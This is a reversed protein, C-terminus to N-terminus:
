TPPQNNPQPPNTNNAPRALDCAGGGTVRLNVARRPVTHPARQRRLHISIPARLDPLPVIQACLKRGVGREGCGRVHSQEAGAQLREVM